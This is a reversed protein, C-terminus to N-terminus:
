RRQLSGIALLLLGLVGGILPSAALPWSMTAFWAGVLTSAGAVAWGFPRLGARSWAFAGLVISALALLISGFFMVSIIVALDEMSQIDDRFGM